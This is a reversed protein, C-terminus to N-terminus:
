ASRIVRMIAGVTLGLVFVLLVFGVVWAFLEGSGSYDLPASASNLTVAVPQMAQGDIVGCPDVPVGDASPTCAVVITM